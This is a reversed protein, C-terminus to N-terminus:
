PYIIFDDHEEYTPSDGQASTAQHLEQLVAYPLELVHEDPHQTSGFEFDGGSAKMEIHTGLVWEVPNGGDVFDVMRQISAKYAQWSSIYLRGPYLTDGTFLLEHTRDYLAVHASQHGPIALVDVLRNGLDIASTDTPWPAIDFYSAVASQSAGVTEYGAKNSFDSDGGTHDGHGHSHSVIVSYTSIGRDAKWQDVVQAVAEYINVAGTGTDQVLARDQGLLLYIFPGEFNTCLSQRLIYTDDAYAWIQISPNNGCDTGDAWKTPFGYVAPAAGGGGASM